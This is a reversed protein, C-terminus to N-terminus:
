HNMKRIVYVTAEKFEKMYFESPLVFFVFLLLPPAFASYIKVPKFADFIAQSDNRFVM